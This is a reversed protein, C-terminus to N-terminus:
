QEDPLAPPLAADDDLSRREEDAMPRLNDEPLPRLNADIRPELNRGDDRLERDEFRPREATRVSPAPNRDAALGGRDKQRFLEWGNATPTFEYLGEQITYRAEGQGSGRDFSIVFQGKSSLTHSGGPEIQMQRSDDIVFSLTENSENRITVGPGEYNPRAVVVPQSYNPQSYYQTSPQTYYNGGYGGGYYGDNWGGGYYNRGYYPNGYGYGRGYGGWGYDGYGRGYGYGGSGVSIRGSGTGISFGGPGISFGSGGRGGGWGGGRGGRQAFADLPVAVLLATAVVGLLLKKLM